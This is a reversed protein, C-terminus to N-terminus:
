VAQGASVSALPSFGGVGGNCRKGDKFHISAFLCVVESCIICGKNFVPDSNWIVSVVGLNKHPLSLTITQGESLTKEEEMGCAM